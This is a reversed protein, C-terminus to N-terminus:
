REAVEFICQFSLGEHPTDSCTDSTYISDLAPAVVVFNGFERATKGRFPKPNM